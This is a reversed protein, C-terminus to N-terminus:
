RRRSPRPNVDKDRLPSKAESRARFTQIVAPQVPSRVSADSWLIFVNSRPLAAVHHYPRLRHRGSPRKAFGRPAGAHWSVYGTEGLHILDSLGDSNLDLEFNPWLGNQGSANANLDARVELAQRESGQFTRLRLDVNMEKSVLANAISLLHTSVKSRVLLSGEPRELVALPLAWDDKKWLLSSQHESSLSVFLLYASSQRPLGGESVGIVLSTGSPTREGLMVRYDARPPTQLVRDLAILHHARKELVGTKQRYYIHVREEHVVVLDSRRDGNMDADLFHPAYLSTAVEYPKQPSLANPSRNSYSRIRHAYALVYPEASGELPVIWIGTRGVFRLENVRTGEQACLHTGYLRTQDGMAFLADAQLWRHGHHDILGDPLMFVFRAGNPLVCSDAFLAQAPVPIANDSRAMTKSPPELPELHRQGKADTVSLYPLWAGDREVDFVDWVQADKTYTEIGPAALPLWAGLIITLSVM